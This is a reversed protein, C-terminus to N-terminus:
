AGMAKMQMAKAMELLGVAVYPRANARIRVGTFDEEHGKPGIIEVITVIRGIQADDPIDADDEIEKM